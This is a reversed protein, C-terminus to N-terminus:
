KLNMSCFRTRFPRFLNETSLLYLYLPLIATGLECCGALMCTLNGRLLNM